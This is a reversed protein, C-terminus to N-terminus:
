NKLNAILTVCEVAEKVDHVRLISAGKLLAVTNMAITGPLAEQPSIELTKYIFSKRSVGVLIPVELMQFLELHKLLEFNQTANKAFLGFGPDVIIDNIGFSRATKVKESLAKIVDVTVDHYKTLSSMTKPTGRMHMVIFPVQLEAVTEMMKSDLDGGSIDNIMGAGAEVAKKAVHSRFTDASILTQPFKKLILNIARTIRFIEEEETVNNAGPRSSYGGIDIFDAGEELMKEVQNLIQVDTFSKGGDYFSDPTVNIIGMVKPLSLDILQNSCNLTM